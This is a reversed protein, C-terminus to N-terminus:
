RTEQGPLPTRGDALRLHATLRAPLEEAPVGLAGADQVLRDLAVALLEERATERVAPSNEAVFTGQGVRTRVLGRAELEQVARAATNRNVRLQVALERVPPIRDGPRLLGRAVQRQVCEVLQQYLPVPSGPDIDWTM